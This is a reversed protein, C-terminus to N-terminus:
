PLTLGWPEPRNPDEGDLCNLAIFQRVKWDPGPISGLGKPEEELALALVLVLMEGDEEGLVGAWKLLAAGLLEGMAILM